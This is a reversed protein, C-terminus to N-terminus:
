RLEGVDTRRAEAVLADLNDGTLSRLFAVLDEVDSPSLELTQILPDQGPHPVGGNAYHRVVDALTALSGDHMYPATYAVNRLTPTKFKWRDSPKRTIEYRGLDNPIPLLLTGPSLEVVIGPALTLQELDLKALMTREYGIGTDHFADDTFQAAQDGVLHCGVCGSARFIGFGRIASQSLAKEDGGYHWRDFESGASTLSRQYAALARGVTEMTAPRDFATEFWGGYDELGAIKELVFGVSPNAMERKNLLPSWAQTELSNERGDHFLRARYGVNLLTPANRRVSRGEVGVPTQLENQTFAQEPVHCMACSITGNGSLRRDFFLKRGLAVAEANLAIPPPLGLLGGSAVRAVPERAAQLSKSDSRYDRTAYGARSDGQGVRTPEAGMAAPTALVAIAISLLCFTGGRLRATEPPYIM